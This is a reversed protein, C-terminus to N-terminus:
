SSAGRVLALYRRELAELSVTRSTSRDPGLFEWVDGDFSIRGADLLIIRAALGPIDQLVHTAMLVVRDQGLDTILERVELRQAPDLGSMPEDLLLVPSPVAITAAIALRRRMGGSLSRVKSGARDSLDVRALAQTALGQCARSGAGRTWACYAVFESCTFSDLLSPEQPLLVCSTLSGASSTPREHIGPCEVTVEGHQRGLVGAVVGFLTSKGAGNPGLLATVGLGASFSVERLASLRGYSHSLGRVELSM